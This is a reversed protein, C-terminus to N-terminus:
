CKIINTFLKKFLKVLMYFFNFLYFCVVVTLIQFNFSLKLNRTWVDEQGPPRYMKDRSLKNLLGIIFIRLSELGM